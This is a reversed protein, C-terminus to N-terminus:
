EDVEQSGDDAEPIEGIVLLDGPDRDGYPRSYTENNFTMVATAGGDLNYARTCGLGEFVQAFYEIELGRSWGTQRGDVTVFCYHGPEYYGFGSRPNEWQIAVETNSFDTVAKGDNDLLKPGFKWTQYPNKALIDEAAYEDTTYTEVTGDYYLVCIDCETQETFYVDGNRVLLGSYQTNCYDGSIALVANSKIGGSIASESGFHTFTGNAIYTRFNEISGIYIDAVYYVVPMGRVDTEVTEISISINPSSYSFDTWIIEDTFRDEFKIQWETRTDIVEPEASVEPEDEADISVVAPSPAVASPSPTVTVTSVPAIEVNKATIRPIVHHFMAFIVLVLGTLLVDGVIYKVARGSKSSSGKEYGSVQGSSSHKGKM